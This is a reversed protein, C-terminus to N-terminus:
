AYLIIWGGRESKKKGKTVKPIMHNCVTTVCSPRRMEFSMKATKAYCCMSIQM